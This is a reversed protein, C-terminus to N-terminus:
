ARREYSKEVATVLGNLITEFATVIGVADKITQIQALSNVSRGAVEVLRSVIEVHSPTKPQNGNLMNAAPPTTKAPAPAEAKSKKMEKQARAWAEDITLTRSVYSNGNGPFTRNEETLTGVIERGEYEMIDEFFVNVTHTLGDPCIAKFKARTWKNNGRVGEKVIQPETVILRTLTEM